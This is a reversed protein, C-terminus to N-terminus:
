EESEIKKMSDWFEIIEKAFPAAISGGHGENEFFISFAIEPKEWTAYGAFWAHTTKGMHNEASGTKGFVKVNKVAAKKGTGYKENVTKYLAKQIIQINNRIIPLEIVNPAFIDVMNGQVTKDLLHPQFWIGDNAIASYLACIQLPTTLIEGQGISLNVKHGIIGFYQGYNDTYWKQTPFFGNREEPLDINTKQTLMCSLTFDHFEELKFNLSLDYFFTDCSYKIANVVNLKGHGSHLWCKFYRNGVQMGGDCTSLKTNIDIFGNELGMMAPVIKYVSAPPYSGQSIRDLMPKAPDQLIKQWFDTTIKGSFMNPDYVPNSMYSLIGGTQVDMVVIAGRYNQPIINQIFEQLDNDITLILDAGNKPKKEIDSKFFNLNRGSSDVQLIKNGNEGRLTKEYYKELGTKGLMSNMSYGEYKKKSYEHENIKGVYGTFHNKYYYKRSTESLISLSPFFNLQESIEVVKQHSINQILLIENHLRYRNKYIIERIEIKSFSVEKSLFSILKELDKMKGPSFYLNMSPINKVITKYNRDYIEGRVPSIDIIRVYNKGAIIKYEKGKFVQLRLLSFIIILFLFSISYVLHTYKNEPLPM